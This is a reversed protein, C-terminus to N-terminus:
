HLKLLCARSSKNSAHLRWSVSKCRLWWTVATFHSRPYFFLLVRSGCCGSSNYLSSHTWMQIPCLHGLFSTWQTSSVLPSTRKTHVTYQIDVDWEWNAEKQSLFMCCVNQKQLARSLVAVQLLTASYFIFSDFLAQQIIRTPFFLPLFILKFVSM